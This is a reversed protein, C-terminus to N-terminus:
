MDRMQRLYGSEIHNIRIKQLLPYVIRTYKRIITEAPKVIQIDDPNARQHSGTSGTVLSSFSNMFSPSSCLVFLYELSIDSKPLMVLFESSAIARRNPQINPLWVRPIRPNIRSLLVCNTTVCFKNSKIYKGEEIKPVQGDDYAPISFHDFTEDPFNNPNVYERSIERIESFACMKWESPILVNGCKKMKGGSSKYSKNNENPFEFDIFWHKFITQAIQELTYNIKTNILIKFDLLKLIKSCNVQYEVPIYPVRLKSLDSGRIGSVAVQQIIGDMVNRGLKSNFFYYYFWPDAIKKNLRVRII